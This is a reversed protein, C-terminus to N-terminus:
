PIWLPDIIFPRHHDWPATEQLTSTDSALALKIGGKLHHNQM